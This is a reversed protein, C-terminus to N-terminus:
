AEIFEAFFRKYAAEQMVAMGLEEHVLADLEGYDQLVGKIVEMQQPTVPRLMVMNPEFTVRRHEKEWLLLQDMISQPLCLEESIEGGQESAKVLTEENRGSKGYLKTMSPHAKSSLFSMIQMATLGRQFAIFTSDRTIRFCALVSNVVEEPEAFTNVVRLLSPNSSYVFLRFNNETIISDTEQQHLLFVEEAEIKRRKLEESTEEGGGGREAAELEVQHAMISATSLPTASRWDLGHRFHPSIVFCKQNDPGKIPYVLGIEALRVLLFYSLFDDEKNPFAYICISGDLMALIALRQWINRKTITVRDSEAINKMSQLALLREVVAELLVWWQQKMSMMCFRLGAATITREEGSGESREAPIINALILTANLGKSSPLSATASSDASLAVVATERLVTESKRVSNTYSQPQLPFWPEGTLFVFHYRLPSASGRARGLSTTSYLWLRCDEESREDREEGLGWLHEVVRRMELWFPPTPSAEDKKKPTEMTVQHSAETKTEPFILSFLEQSTRCALLCHVEDKTIRSESLPDAIAPANFAVIDDDEEEVLAEKEKMVLRKEEVQERDQLVGLVHQYTLAM